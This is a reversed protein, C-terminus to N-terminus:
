HVAIGERGDDDPKPLNLNYNVTYYRGGTGTVSGSGVRYAPGLVPPPTAMRTDIDALAKELDCIRDELVRVHLALKGITDIQLKWLENVNM